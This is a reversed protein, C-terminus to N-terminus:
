RLADSPDLRPLRHGQAGDEAQHPRGAARSARRHEAGGHDQLALDARGAAQAAAEHDRAVRYRVRLEHEFCEFHIDSAGKHVADGLIANILKVVPAENVAVTLAAATMEEQEEEVTEVDDFDLDIDDLLRDMGDVTEEVAPYVREIMTRLTYEGAIVPYIDSRTRFKLDDIVRLNTPDAMAVYLVRGERRLPMVLHQVAIDAPVLRVLAPDIESRTLDVAPVKLQRALLRTLTLEDVFGLKVLTYGLRNGASARQEELAKDLQARTILGESILLEGIRETSPPATPTTIITM